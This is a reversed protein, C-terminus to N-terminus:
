FLENEIKAPLEAYAKLFDVAMESKIFDNNDKNLVTNCDCHFTICDVNKMWAFNRIQRNVTTVLNVARDFENRNEITAYQVNWEQLSKNNYLSLKTDAVRKLVVIAKEDDFDYLISEYNFAVRIYKIEYTKEILSLFSVAKDIFDKREIESSATTGTWTIDIRENNFTIGWERKPSFIIPRMIRKPKPIETKRTDFQIGFEEAISVILNHQVFANALKTYKINQDGDGVYIDSFNGFVSFSLLLNYLM